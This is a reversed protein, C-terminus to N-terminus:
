AGVAIHGKDIVGQAVLDSWTLENKELQKVHKDTLIPMGDKVVILPRRCRGRSSEVHIRDLLEDFYININGSIAGARRDLRIRQVFEQTDEVTGVFKGNLMLESM